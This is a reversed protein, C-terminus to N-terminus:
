LRIGGRMPSPALNKRHTRAGSRRFMAKSRGKSIKNRHM